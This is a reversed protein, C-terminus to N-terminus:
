GIVSMLKFIPMYMAILLGGILGGLFLIILPELIKGLNDVTNDVDNEYLAAMKNLMEDLSGSEEGIMTMQLMLEPFVDSQRLAIHLPMGAATNAHAEMMATEIYQNGATKGAAHLGDLLPIGASFTTALTRAFRAITAKLIVSGVIPLKLNLRHIGFKARASKKYSYTLCFLALVIAASLYAGHNLVWDSLIIVQRTFWPLEAGFSSFINSFQPIVFVLMMITVGIATITVMAPYIMAKIVKKRMAENKERYTAIRDFVEALHGTQEGTSVLDCYFNDFMPSSNRMARSLSAGAEVQITVQSLIARGEAKHHSDAMLKLAQVVPVGSAIMTCLQRTLATIDTPKLQNKLKSLTSPKRHKIKKVQIMQETLKARVEQEQFGLIVGSLKKGAQNVGRWHYYRIKSAQAM